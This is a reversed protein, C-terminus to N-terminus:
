KSQLNCRRGGNCCLTNTEGSEKEFRNSSHPPLWVNNFWRCAELCASNFHKYNVRNINIFYFTSQTTPPDQQTAPATPSRNPSSQGGVKEIDYQFGLPLRVSKWTFTCTRDYYTSCMLVLLLLVAVLGRLYGGTRRMYKEGVVKSLKIGCAVRLATM